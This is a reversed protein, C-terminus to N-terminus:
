LKEFNDRKLGKCHEWCKLWQEFCNKLDQVPIYTLIKKMSSKIDEADLFHKGKLV